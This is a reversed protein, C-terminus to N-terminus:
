PLDTGGSTLGNRALQATLRAEFGPQGTRDVVHWAWRPVGARILAQSSRTNLILTNGDRVIVDIPVDKPTLVGSRLDGAVDDVTRGAFNGGKSFTESLSTQAFKAAEIDVTCSTVQDLPTLRKAASSTAQEAVLATETEALLRTLPRNALKTALKSALGAALGEIGFGPIVLTGAFSGIGHIGSHPNIGHDKEWRDMARDLLTKVTRNTGGATGLEFLGRVAGAAFERKVGTDGPVALGALTPAATDWWHAAQPAKTQAAVLAGIAARAAADTSAWAAELKAVADARLGSGGASFVLTTSGQVPPSFSAGDLFRQMEYRSAAEIGAEWWGRAIGADTKAAALEGAYLRFAGAASDFARTADVFGERRGGLAAWFAEYAPGTWVPDIRSLATAADATVEAFQALTGALGRVAEPDGPVLRDVGWGCSLANVASTM